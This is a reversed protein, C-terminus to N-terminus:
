RLPIMSMNLVLRNCTNTLIANYPNYIRQKNYSSAPKVGDDEGGGGGDDDHDDFTEFGTTM